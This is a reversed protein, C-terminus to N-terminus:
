YQIQNIVPAPQNTSLVVEIMSGPEMLTGPPPSQHLVCGPPIEPSAASEGWVSVELGCEHAYEMAILLDKFRLDPAGRSRTTDELRKFLTGFWVEMSKKEANEKKVKDTKEKFGRIASIEDQLVFPHDVSQLIIDPNEGPTQVYVNGIDLFRELVNPVMVKIDRINKYETEIRQEFFFVFHRNIDIIRKNTLIYVDDVYNMYILGMTILLGLVILGMFLLWYGLFPGTVLNFSPMLLTVPVVVMLAATPASENRWLVYRSRQVYKVTYEGSTYRVDTPIRLIGGFTRRPGHFRENEGKLPPLDADANQLQPVPKGQALEKLAQAIDPDEPLPVPAEPKKKAKVEDTIGQIADRVKKPNPVERLVLDGGTLYLHITGFGLLLGLMSDMGLGVQEVSDLPTQQRTPQLLGRANIIRKNTIIYTEYWWSVLYRYAFWVAVGLLFLFLIAIISGWLAVNGPLVTVGWLALILLLFAGFVPLAPRMLFWWHRRVVLRVEEGPQQGAFSWKSNRNRRLNRIGFRKRGSEWINDKSASTAKQTNKEAM